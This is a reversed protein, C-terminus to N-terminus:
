NSAQGGTEAAKRKAEQYAKRQQVGIELLDSVLMRAERQEQALVAPSKKPADEANASVPQAEQAPAAPLAMVMSSSGLAAVTAKRMTLEKITGEVNVVARDRDADFSIVHIGDTIGGVPIWRTHKAQREFICVTVEGGQVASGALEYAEPPAGALGASGAAPSFPSRGVLSGQALAAAACALVASAGLAMRVSRAIQRSEHM